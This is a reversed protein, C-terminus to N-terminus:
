SLPTNPDPPPLYKSSLTGSTSSLNNLRAVAGIATGSEDQLFVFFAAVQDNGDGLFQPYDHITAGYGLPDALRVTLVAAALGAPDSANLSVLSPKGAVRTLGGAVSDAITATMPDPQQQEAAKTSIGLEPTSMHGHWDVPGQDTELEIVAGSIADASDDGVSAQYASAALGALWQAYLVDSRGTSRVRVRLALYPVGKHMVLAEPTPTTTRDVAVITAAPDTPLAKAIETFAQGGEAAFGSLVPPEPAPETTTVSATLPEAATPSGGTGRPAQTDASGCAALLAVSLSLSAALRVASGFTM